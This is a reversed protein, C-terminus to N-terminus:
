ACWLFVGSGSLYIPVTNYFCPRAGLCVQRLVYRGQLPGPGEPERQSIGACPLLGEGVFRTPSVKRAGRVLRSVRACVQCAAPDSGPRSAAREWAVTNLAVISVCVGAAAPRIGLGHPQERLDRPLLLPLHRALVLWALSHPVSLVIKLHEASNKAFHRIPPLHPPNKTLREIGM